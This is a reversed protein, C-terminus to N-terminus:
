DLILYQPDLVQGKSGEDFLLLTLEGESIVIVFQYRFDEDLLTEHKGILQFALSVKGLVRDIQCRIAVLFGVDGHIGRKGIFGHLIEHSM